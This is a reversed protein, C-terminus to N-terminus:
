NPKQEEETVDFEEHWVPPNKGRQSVLEHVMTTLAVWFPSPARGEISLFEGEQALLIFGVPEDREVRDALDRLTKAIGHAKRM